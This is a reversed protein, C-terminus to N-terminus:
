LLSGWHVKFVSSNAANLAAETLPSTVSDLAAQAAETLPSTVSDLAAQAASISLFDLVIPLRYSFGRPPLPASKAQQERLMVTFKAGQRAAARAKRAATSQHKPM